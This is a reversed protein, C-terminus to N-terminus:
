YEAWVDVVVVKGKNAKVVDILERYKVLKLDVTRTEKAGEKKSKGPSGNQAYGEGLSFVVAALLAL